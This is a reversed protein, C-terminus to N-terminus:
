ERPAALYFRYEIPHMNYSVRRSLAVMQKVHVLPVTPLEQRYREYARLYLARRKAPDLEGQARKVVDNFEPDDWFSPSTEGKSDGHLIPYFTNDPDAIDASWGMLCMPHSEEKVKQRYAALDFGSLRVELGIKQLQDKLFEAVRRPEPVYPRSFTMHHLEVQNSPLKAKALEEKAKEVSLEYPPTPGLDGWIAPPIVNTAPEALGYYAVTNLAQRDIAMAVARRFHLNDYPAKRMNFALYCINMSTETDVQTSPHAELDKLDGLSVHDVAHVEGKKLKEIATQPSAVPVVIVRPFPPKSGWYGDFRELVIRVDRDWRAFRYPGTGVPNQPFAAGHKRVAAPSVICAGFLTLNHLIVASPNRLTFVARQPGDAKVSEIDAFNAAYPVVKPKHPHSPDRLREFTFVVAEADFPTGDHFSVGPRLDFTITRGDPSFHWKTALRGELEVSDHKFSVLPEFVNQTIKADEGWDVEAPDLTASDSSRAWILAERSARASGGPPSTPERSCSAIPALLLAVLLAGRAM